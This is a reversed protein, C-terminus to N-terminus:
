AGTEAVHEALITLAHQRAAPKLTYGVGWLTEITLLPDVAKLKRRIHCVVVDVMKQDTPESAPDRNTEIANHLYTKSAEGRRLMAVLVVAQLKTTKFKGACALHLTADDHSLLTKEVPSRSHRGGPPWDDKPIEILRGQGIASRLLEYVDEGPVKISRAIARVPVGEDALAVAIEAATRLVIPSPQPQSTQAATASM